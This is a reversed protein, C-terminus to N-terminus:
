FGVGNSSVLALHNGELTYISYTVGEYYWSKVVVELTGDGDLDACTMVEYLVQYISVYDLDETLIYSDVLQDVPQGGVMKRFILVANDGKGVQEFQGDVTNDAALLVEDTGDGDLDVSVIQKLETAPNEVGKAAIMEEALVQYEPQGTDQSEYGRPFLDWDARIAMDYVVQEENEDYLKVDVLENLDGDPEVPEGTLFSVPLEGEAQGTLEDDVYVDYVFGDFGVIGATYFDDYNMWEGKNLGGVLLGQILVPTNADPQAAIETPVPTPEMTPEPTPAAPSPTEEAVPASPGAGNNGPIQQSCGVLLLLLSMLISIILLSAKQKM